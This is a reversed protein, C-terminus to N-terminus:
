QSGNRTPAADSAAGAGPRAGRAGVIEHARLALWLQVVDAMRSLDRGTIEEIRGLRYALTHKHVHLHRAAEQLRRDRDFFVRLSHVMSSNNEADYRLLPDLIEGALEQLTGIDTPLWHVASDSSPFRRLRDGDGDVHELAWTAEKRAVTVGQVGARERSVGARVPLGDIAAELVDPQAPALLYLDGDIHLMHPVELDCLRHHVEDDYPDGDDGRIAAVVLRMSQDLGAERFATEADGLDLSGAFLKALTEAGRRRRMERVYYLKSLELAAITAMHRVAGLGAAPADDRELAVLFSGPRQELPIPVAYGGPVAPRGRSLRLEEGGLAEVVEPPPRRFGSIMAAGTASVLYLDYGSIEELREFLEQPGTAHDGPRLTDFIRVHTLLRQQASDQNADAVMRAISLFPVELPVSLLPFRLREAMALMEPQLRPGRVGIALGAVHREDLRKVLAAQREGDAPLGLGNTMLLEGGDLWPAPDELESVHTWSVTRDIGNAAAILRLQLSPSDLLDRIRM